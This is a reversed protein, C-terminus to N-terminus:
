PAAARGRLLADPHRELLEALERLSRAARAVDQLARDANLRLASDEAAAERLVVAAQGLEASMRQVQAVMPLGAAALAQTQSAAAGMQAAAMALQQAAPAIQQVARRSEALTAEASRALPGVERQMTQALQQVSSAAAASRALLQAAEPGGLLQRTSAAVASLDRGIQALDLGELQSQLTQLRTAQTPIVPLTGAAGAAPTGTSAVARAPDIDLDIYLLGTLLSQTALRAVLGRAVLAPLAAGATSLPHGLVGHLLARDFEATVPMALGDPGAPALAVTVVQGVRVGRLVVPAGVQLGYVSRDFRMVGRESAAFWNGGLLVVALAVLALGALAFFGVRWAAPRM